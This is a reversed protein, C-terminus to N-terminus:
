SKKSFSYFVDMWDYGNKQWFKDTSMEEWREVLQERTIENQNALKFAKYQKKKFTPPFAFGREKESWAILENYAKLKDGSIRPSKSDGLEGELDSSEKVEIVEAPRATLAPYIHKREISKNQNAPALVRQSDPSIPRNGMVLLPIIELRGSRPDNDQYIRRIFGAKELTNLSQQVTGPTTKALHALTDNSATCRENKLRTLWYIYGYVIAETNKCDEHDIIDRFFPFFEPREMM